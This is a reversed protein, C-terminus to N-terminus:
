NEWRSGIAEVVCSWFQICFVEVRV